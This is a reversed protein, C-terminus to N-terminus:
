RARTAMWKDLDTTPEIAAEAKGAIVVIIKGTAPDIEARAPERGAALVAKIAATVDRQRFTAAARSM